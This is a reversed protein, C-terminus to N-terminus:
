YNKEYLPNLESDIGMGAIKWVGNQRVLSVQYGSHWTRHVEGNDAFYEFTVYGVVSDESQAIVNFAKQNSFNSTGHATFWANQMTSIRDYWDSATVSIGAVQGLTAEQAPLKACTTAYNVLTNLVEPDTVSEGVYITGTVVDKLTTYEGDGMMEIKPEGLLNELLYTDVKPATSQDKMGKFNTATENYRIMNDETMEIGNVMIKYGTPVEITYSNNGSFETSAHYSGDAAQLLKLSALYKGNSYLDYVEVGDVTDVNYFEIASLDADKYIEQLKAIYEERGNLHPAILQSDEYVGSYDGAKLRAFYESIASEPMAAEEEAFEKRANNLFVFSGGVCGILVLLILILGVLPNM